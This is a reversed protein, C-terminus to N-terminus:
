QTDILIRDSSSADSFRALERRKMAFILLTLRAIFIM